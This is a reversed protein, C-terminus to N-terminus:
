VTVMVSADDSLSHRAAVFRYSGRVLVRQLGSPAGPTQSQWTMLRDDIVTLPVTTTGKAPVAVHVFAVLRRRLPVLSTVPTTAYLQVLHTTPTSGPNAVTVNFNTSATRPDHSGILATITVNGYGLGYGFPYQPSSPAFM